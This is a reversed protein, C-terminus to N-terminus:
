RIMRGRGSDEVAERYHSDSPGSDPNNLAEMQAATPEWDICASMEAVLLAYERDYVDQRGGHDHYQENALFARVASELDTVLGGGRAGADPM